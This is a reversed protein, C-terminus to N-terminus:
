GFFDILNWKSPRIIINIIKYLVLLRFFLYQQCVFRIWGYLCQCFSNQFKQFNEFSECSQHVVWGILLSILQCQWNTLRRSQCMELYVSKLRCKILKRYDLGVIICSKTSRRYDSVTIIRCKISKRYDLLILYSM